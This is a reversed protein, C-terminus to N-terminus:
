VAVESETPCAAPVAAALLEVLRSFPVARSFLWGQLYQCGLQRLREAQAELEVGEAVVSLGLNHSMAVITKVIATDKEGDPLGDVFSKDVKLTDLPLRKL